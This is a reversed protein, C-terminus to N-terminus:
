IKSKTQTATKSPAAAHPAVDGVDGSGAGEGEGLGDGLGDGFGDGLGDGDGAGLLAPCSAM